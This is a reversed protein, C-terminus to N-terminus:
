RLEVDIQLMPDAAPVYTAPLGLECRIIDCGQTIPTYQDRL